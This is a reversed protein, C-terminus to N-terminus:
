VQSNQKEMADVIAQYIDSYGRIEMTNMGAVKRQQTAAGEGDREIGDDKRVTTNFEFSTFVGNIAASLTLGVHGQWSTTKSRWTVWCLPFPQTVKYRTPVLNFVTQTSGGEPIEVFRRDLKYYKCVEDIIEQQGYQCYSEGFKGGQSKIIADIAPSRNPVSKLEKITAYPGNATKITGDIMGKVVALMEARTPIKPFPKPAPAAVVVADVASPPTPTSATTQGSTVPPEAKKFVNLLSKIFDFM